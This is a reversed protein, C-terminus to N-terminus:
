DVFGAELRAVEGLVGAFPQCCPACPVSGPRKRSLLTATPFCRNNRYGSPVVIRSPFRLM